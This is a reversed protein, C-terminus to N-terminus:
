DKVFYVEVGSPMTMVLRGDDWKGSNHAMIEEPVNGSFDPDVYTDLVFLDGAGYPRLGKYTYTRVPEPRAYM